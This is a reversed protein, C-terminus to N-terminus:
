FRTAMPSAIIRCSRNAVPSQFASPSNILQASNARKPRWDILSQRRLKLVKDVEARFQSTSKVLDGNMKHEDDLMRTYGGDCLEPYHEYFNKYGGELVYVDPYYINPYSDKNLFRDHERFLAAMQPGRNHSFECHFIIVCRKVQKEFFRTTLDKPSDLHIANPIHGGDYEYLYRCDIVYLHDYLNSYKGQILQAMTDATIKPVNGDLKLQSLICKGFDTSKSMNTQPRPIKPKPIENIRIPENDPQNEDLEPLPIDLSFM